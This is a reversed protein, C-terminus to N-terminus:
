KMKGKSMLISELFGKWEQERTNWSYVLDIYSKSAIANVVNDQKNNSVESIGAELMQQFINLHDRTDERYQYMWTFNSATEFLAGYNPHICLCGASM